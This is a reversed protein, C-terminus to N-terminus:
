KMVEDPEYIDGGADPLMALLWGEHPRLVDAAWKLSPQRLDEPIIDIDDGCRLLAYRGIRDEVAILAELMTM